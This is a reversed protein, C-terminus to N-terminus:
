LSALISQLKTVDRGNAAVHQGVLAADRHDIYEVHVSIPGNFKMSNLMGLFRPYDVRGTGLPVNKMKKGEWVFDKAYVTDVHPWIRRFAIPWSTGGEVTAHRIDYAVALDRASIGDLVEALDWIGAGLYKEGAHNQYVGRIGLEKNLAALDRLKGRWEAHQEKISRDEAYRFYQLRYRKIGLQSAVRLTKETMPDSADNISSAMVTIELGRKRLAEVMKPLEDPVQEPEIHGGKRITAEIGTVGISAVKEAMDDYSLSQLGKTFICVARKPATGQAQLQSAFLGSTLGIFHRRNM